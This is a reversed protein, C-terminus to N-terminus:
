IDLDEITPQNAPDAVLDYLEAPVLAHLEELPEAIRLTSEAPARTWTQNASWDGVWARWGTNWKEANPRHQHVGRLTRHPDRVTRYPDPLRPLGGDRRQNVTGM